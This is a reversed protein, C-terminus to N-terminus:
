NSFYNILLSLNNEDTKDNQADSSTQTEDFGAPLDKLQIVTYDDKAPEVM